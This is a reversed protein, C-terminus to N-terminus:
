MGEWGIRRIRIGSEDCHRPISSLDRQTRYRLKPAATRDSASHTLISGARQEIETGVAVSIATVFGGLPRTARRGTDADNM